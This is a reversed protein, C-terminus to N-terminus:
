QSYDEDPTHFLIKNDIITAVGLHEGSGSYLDVQQVGASQEMSKKEAFDSECWSIYAVSLGIGVISAFLWALSFHHDIAWNLTLWIGTLSAIFLLLDLLFHKATRLYISRRIVM